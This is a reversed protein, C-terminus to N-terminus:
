VYNYEAALFCMFFDTVAVNKFWSKNIFVYFQAVVDRVYELYDSCTVKTSNLNRLAHANVEWVTYKNQGCPSQSVQQFIRDM